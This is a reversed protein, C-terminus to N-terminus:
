NLQTLEFDNLYKRLTRGSHNKMKKNRKSTIMINLKLQIKINSTEKNTLNIKMMQSKKMLKIKTKYLMKYYKKNKVKRNKHVKQLREKVKYKKKM